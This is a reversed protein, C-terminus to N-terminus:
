RDEDFVATLVRKRGLSSAALPKGGDDPDPSAPVPVAGAVSSSSVGTPSPPPPPSPFSGFWSSPDSNGVSHTIQLTTTHVTCKTVM